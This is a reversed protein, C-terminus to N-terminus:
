NLKFKAYNGKNMYSWGYLKFLKIIDNSAIDQKTNVPTHMIGINRKTDHLGLVHGIEHLMVTFIMDQSNIQPNPAIIIEGKTIQGGMITIAYSGIDGDSGDTKDTFKVVIDAPIKKAMIFKLQGYSKDQWKKFAHVMMSSYPNGEPIYVTIENKSWNPGYDGVAFSPKIFFLMCFIAIFLILIKKM